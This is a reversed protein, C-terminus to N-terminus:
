NDPLITGITTQQVTREKGKKKKGEGRHIRGQQQWFVASRSFAFLCFSLCFFFFVPGVERWHGGAPETLRASHIVNTSINNEKESV